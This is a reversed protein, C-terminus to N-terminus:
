HWELWVGKDFISVNGAGYSGTPITGEFNRYLVPHDEVQVALRKTNLDQPIGKPIAWSVLVGDIELRLDFHHNRSSHEQLVFSYGSSAGFTPKPEPTKTFDRKEEYKSLSKFPHSIDRSRVKSPGLCKANALNKEEM